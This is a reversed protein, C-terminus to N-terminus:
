CVTRSHYASVEGFREAPPASCDREPVDRLSLLSPFDEWHASRQASCRPTWKAPFSFHTGWHESMNNRSVRSDLGVSRLRHVVFKSASKLLFIKTGQKRAEPISLYLSNSKSRHLICRVTGLELLFLFPHRTVSSQPGFVWSWQLGWSKKKPEVKNLYKYTM